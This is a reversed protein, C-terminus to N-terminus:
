RRPDKPQGKGLHTRLEDNLGIYGIDIDRGSQHSRHPKLKRGRRRSIDGLRIKQAGPFAEGYTSFAAVLADITLKTGWDNRRLDRLIWYPGEPMPM